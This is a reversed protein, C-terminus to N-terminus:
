RCYLWSSGINTFVPLQVVFLGNQYCKALYKIMIL